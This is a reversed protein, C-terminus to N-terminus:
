AHNRLQVRKSNKQIRVIWGRYVLCEGFRSSLVRIPTQGRDDDLLTLIEGGAILGMSGSRETSYAHQSYRNLCMTGAKSRVKAM